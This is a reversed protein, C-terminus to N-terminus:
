QFEDLPIDLLVAPIGEAASLGPVVAVLKANAGAAASLASYLPDYGEEPLEAYVRFAAEYLASVSQGTDENQPLGPSDLWVSVKISPAATQVATVFDTVTGFRDEAYAIRQLWGYSPYGVGRLILEQFGLGELEKAIGTLYANAEENAPDLFIRSDPDRWGINKINQLAISEDRRAYLDDRHAYMVAAVPMGATRLRALADTLGDVPRVIDSRNQLEPLESPYYIVGDEDKMTVVAGSVAGSEYLALLRDTSDALQKASLQIMRNNRPSEPRASFLPTTKGVNKLSSLDSSFKVEKSSAREKEDDAASADASDNGSDKQPPVDDAEASSASDKTDPTDSEESGGSVPADKETDSANDTNDATVKDQGPFRLGNEDLPLLLCLVWVAASLIALALIINIIVGRRRVRSGRYPRYGYRDRM